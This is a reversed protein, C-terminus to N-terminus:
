TLYIAATIALAILTPILSYKALLGLAQDLRYRATSAKIVTLVLVVILYKVIIVLIGLLGGYGFPAPGGLFVFVLILSLVMLEADHLLHILALKPGSYETLPGAVVEQEADPIDFPKFMVKAQLVILASIFALATAIATLPNLWLESSHLCTVLLSFSPEAKAFYKTVLITPILLNAVWIPEYVLFMTLYRSTGTITYPNPSMFGVLVFTFTAWLMLYLALVIDYNFAIGLPSAPTMLLLATLAGIGLALAFAPSKKLGVVTTIDEKSTLLKFFDAFPQLIGFPGVYAPGMRNQMRAYLKRFYWETFLSAAIVFLLGPYVLVFVLILLTEMSM